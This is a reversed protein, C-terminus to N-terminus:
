NGPTSQSRPPSSVASARSISNALRGAQAASRGWLDPELAVRLATLGGSGLPRPHDGVRSIKQSVPVLARPGAPSSLFANSCPRLSTDQFFTVGDLPRRIRPPSGLGPPVGVSHPRLLGPLRPHFPGPRLLRVGPGSGAVRAPPGGPGAPPGGPLAPDALVAQSDARGRGHLAPHFDEPQPRDTPRGRRGVGGAARFEGLVHAVAPHGAPARLAQALLAQELREFLAAPTKAGLLREHLALARRGWLEELPVQADRLEGAPVDLFPFAGGPKFRVGVSLAGHGAESVQAESHAGLVSPGRSEDRLDVVLGMTGTPLTRERVRVPAECRYFWFVDVFGALSPPPMRCLFRSRPISLDGDPRLDGRPPEFLFATDPLEFPGSM